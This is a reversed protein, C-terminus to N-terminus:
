HLPVKILSQKYMTYIGLYMDHLYLRSKQTCILFLGHTFYMMAM